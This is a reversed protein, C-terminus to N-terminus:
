TTNTTDVAVFAQDDPAEPSASSPEGNHHGMWAGFLDSYRGGMALLEDHTGLELLGGADVVGVRDAREATSLRHAIVIVTRGTMLRTLAKEVVSETGPDLSSTAEDLILVDPNALAARALSVLQREGASLRSGRERVETLLGDPLADFRDECDITRLAMRVQEETAESDALRVNDLITGHFLFGEQPVVAIRNRVSAFTADKLDVGGYSVTGELPDYFRAMLKALTSKGAGTPGVLAVREAASVTINVDHLVTDTEGPRYAFSVDSVVLEGSAPLEVAGPRESVSPQTDLLGFLKKMAAGSQQVLNFLQSFQQIPDILYALFLVFASVTGISTRHWHVLLAGFGIIVATAAANTFEVVPFYRASLKVAHVNARYQAQNHDVFRSFQEEERGFAQVVRIGALSEQLTSLTQGIRDRVVLYAVNSERRFKRSSIVVPPLVVMTALFLLPSLVLMIVIVGFALLGSTVFIVMGQQVLSELADIDQTMRSVLRGTQEKDFFSMSLSLLHAFVRKRLDRLFSEGIRTVMVIQARECIAMSLAVVLYVVASGIVVKRDFHHPALGHDIAYGVIVPGAVTALTFGILVVMAAILGRQYIRMMRWTRVVIRGAEARDVRDDDEVAGQSWGPGGGMGRM